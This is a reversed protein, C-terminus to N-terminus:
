RWGNRRLKSNFHASCCFNGFFNVLGGKQPTWPRKLGDVNVFRFLGDGNSTVIHLVITGIQLRKWVILALLPLIVNKLLSVGRQRGKSPFGRVWPCSIKDSFVLTRPAACLSSKTISAQVTKIWIVLTVSPCVGLRHSLRAFYEALARLIDIWDSREANVISAMNVSAGCIPQM